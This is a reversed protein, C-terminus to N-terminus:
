VGERKVDDWLVDVFIAASSLWCVVTAGPDGMRWAAMGLLACQASVGLWGFRALWVLMRGTTM